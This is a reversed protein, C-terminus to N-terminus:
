KAEKEIDKAPKFGKSTDKFVLDIRADEAAKEVKGKCNNCCFCVDVGDITVKTEPKCPKGSFPCAVQKLQGTQVMQHHAKAGFKAHTTDANFAKPCNNCCFYVKCDEFMVSAEPNVPKGSVPCKVDKGPVTEVAATAGVVLGGVALASMVALIARAKM